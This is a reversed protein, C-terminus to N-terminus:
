TGGLAYANIGVIYAQANASSSASAVVEVQTLNVHAYGHAYGSTIANAVIGIPKSYLTTSGLYATANGSNQAYASISIADASVTGHGGSWGEAVVAQIHADATASSGDVQAHVNLNELQIHAYSSLGVAANAHIGTMTATASGNLSHAEVNINGTITIDAQSSLAAASILGLKAHADAAATATVDIHGNITVNASAHDLADAVIQEVSATASAGTHNAQALVSLNGITLNAQSGTYHAHA